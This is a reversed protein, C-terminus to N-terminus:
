TTEEYTGNYVRECSRELDIQAVLAIPHVHLGHQCIHLKRPLRTHWRLKCLGDLGQPLVRTNLHADQEENLAMTM